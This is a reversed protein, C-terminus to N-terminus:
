ITGRIVYPIMVYLWDLMAEAICVTGEGCGESGEGEEV